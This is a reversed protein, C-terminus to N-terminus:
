LEVRDAEERMEVSMMKRGPFTVYFLEKGDGRWKPQGGGDASVRVRGGPAQFPEVYIEVAGSEDSIYALWRGDPSFSLAMIWNEHGRLVLPEAMPDSMDWLLATGDRSGTALWRGDSSFSLASVEDDHGRLM